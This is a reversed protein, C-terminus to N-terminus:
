CLIPHSQSIDDTSTVPFDEPLVAVWLQKGSIQPHCHRCASSESGSHAGECSGTHSSTWTGYWSTGLMIGAPIPPM